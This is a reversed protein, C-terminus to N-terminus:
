LPTYVHVCNTWRVVAKDRRVKSAAERCYISFFRNMVVKLLTQLRYPIAWSFLRSYFTIRVGRCIQLIWYFIQCFVLVKEHCNFASQWSISRETMRKRLSTLHRNTRPSFGWGHRSGGLDFHCSHWLHRNFQFPTNACLAHTNNLTNFLYMYRTRKYRLFYTSLLPHSCSLLKILRCFNICFLSHTSLM